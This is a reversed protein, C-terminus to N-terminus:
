WSYVVVGKNTTLKVVRLGTFTTTQVPLIQPPQARGAIVPTVQLQETQVPLNRVHLRIVPHDTPPLCGFLLFFLVQLRRM